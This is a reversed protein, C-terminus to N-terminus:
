EPPLPLAAARPNRDPTHPVAAAASSEVASEPDEPAAFGPLCLAAPRGRSRPDRHGSLPSATRARPLSAAPPPLLSIFCLESHSHRAACRRQWRKSGPQFKILRSGYKYLFAVVMFTKRVPPISIRSVTTSTTAPPPIARRPSM